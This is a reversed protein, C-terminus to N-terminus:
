SDSGKTQKPKAPEAGAALACAQAIEGAVQDVLSGLCTDTHIIEKDVPLV